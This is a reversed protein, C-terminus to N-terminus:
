TLTQSFNKKTLPLHNMGNLITRNASLLLLNVKLSKLAMSNDWIKDIMYQPLSFVSYFSAVHVANAVTM